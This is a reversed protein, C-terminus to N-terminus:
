KVGLEHARHLFGIRAHAPWDGRCHWAADPEPLEIDWGPGEPLLQARETALAVLDAHRLRGPFDPLNFHARVRWAWAAELERWTEGLVRKLPTPVDGIYAEHADHLLGLVAGARGHTRELIRSVHMSHEAVSYFRSVHGGFRCTNALAHAITDLRIETREPHLLDIVEGHTGLLWPTTPTSM